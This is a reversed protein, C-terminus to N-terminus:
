SARNMKSFAKPWTRLSFDFDSKGLLEEPTTGMSRAVSQKALLFKSYADKAFVNDPVSDILTRMLNRENQLTTTLAELEATRQAVRAELTANLKRVAFETEKAATIDRTIGMIGTVQGRDDILPVKTTSHWPLEGTIPNSVLEERDVLPTKSAIVRQDDDYFGQAMEQPHFDFDSKGLAEQHSTVGLFRWLASNVFTYCGQRDKAYILDLTHDGLARLLHHEM